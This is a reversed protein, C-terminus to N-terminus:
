VYHITALFNPEYEFVMFRKHGGIFGEEEHWEDTKNGTPLRRIMIGEDEGTEHHLHGCHIERVHSKSYEVPYELVFQKFLDNSKSKKYDCHGFGIFCGDWYICKRSKLSDDYKLNPFIAKLLQVFTWGISKDHNGKSYHVFINKSKLWHYSSLTFSILIWFCIKRSM